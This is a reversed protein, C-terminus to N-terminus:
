IHISRYRVSSLRVYCLIYKLFRIKLNLKNAIYELLQVDSGCREHLCSEEPSYFVIVKVNPHAVRLVGEFNLKERLFHREGENEITFGSTSKNKKTSLYKFLTLKMKLTSGKHFLRKWSEICYRRLGKLFQLNFQSRVNMLSVNRFQKDIM